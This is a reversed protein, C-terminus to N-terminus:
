QLYDPIPQQWKKYAKLERIKWNERNKDCDKCLHVYKEVQKAPRQTTDYVYTEDVLHKWKDFNKDVENEIEIAVYEPVFRGILEARSLVRGRVVYFEPGLPKALIIKYGQDRLRAISKETNDYRDVVINIRKSILIRQVEDAMKAAIKYFKDQADILSITKGESTKFFEIMTEYGKLMKMIEDPDLLAFLKEDIGLDKYLSAQLSGKGTGPGGVTVIAVPQTQAKLYDFKRYAWENVITEIEYEDPMIISKSSESDYVLYRNTKPNTDNVVVCQYSEQHDTGTTTLACTDTFKSLDAQVSPIGSILIFILFFNLLSFKNRYKKFEGRKQDKIMQKWEQETTKFKVWPQDPDLDIWYQELKDGIKILEQCTKKKNKLTGEYGIIEMIEHLEEKYLNKELDKCLKPVFEKLIKKHLQIRQDFTMSEELKLREQNIRIKLRTQEPLKNTSKSNEQGM